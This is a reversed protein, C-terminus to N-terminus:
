STAEAWAHGQARSKRPTPLAVVVLEVLVAQSALEELVARSAQAARASAPVALLVVLAAQEPVQSALAEMVLAALLRAVRRLQLPPIPIAATETRTRAMAWGATGPAAPAAVELSDLWQQLAAGLFPNSQRALTRTSDAFSASHIHTHTHFSLFSSRRRTKQPLRSTSSTCCCAASLPAEVDRVLAVDLQWCWDHM